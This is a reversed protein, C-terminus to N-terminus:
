INKCLIAKFILDKKMLSFEMENTDTIKLRYTSTIITKKM